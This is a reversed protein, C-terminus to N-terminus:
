RRPLETPQPPSSRCAWRWPRSSWWAARITDPPFSLCIPRRIIPGLIPPRDPFIVQDEIQMVRSLHRYWRGSRAELRWWCWGRIACRPEGGPSRRSSSRASSTRRSSFRLSRTRGSAWGSDFRQGSDPDIAPDFRHLDVGNLLIRTREPPLTYHKRLAREVYQSLCLTIPPRSGTLLLREVAAFRVGAATSGAEERTPRSAPTRTISIANGFRCCRTFSTTAIIASIGIWIMASNRIDGLANGGRARGIPVPTAAPLAESFEQAWCRCPM